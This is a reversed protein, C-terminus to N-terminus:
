RCAERPLTLGKSVNLFQTSESNGCVQDGRRLGKSLVNLCYCNTIHNHHSATPHMETWPPIMVARPLSARFVHIGLSCMHREVKKSQTHSEFSNARFCKETASPCRLRRRCRKRASAGISNVRRPGTRGPMTAMPPIGLTLASGKFYM